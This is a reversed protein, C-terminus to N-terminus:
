RHGGSRPTPTATPTCASVPPPTFRATDAQRPAPGSGVASHTPATSRRGSATTLLPRARREVKAAELDERTIIYANTSDDLKTAPLTGAAIRHLTARPTVGLETAAQRVTLHAESAMGLNRAPAVRATIANHIPALAALKEAEVDRAEDITAHAEAEITAVEAWWTKTNSHNVLRQGLNETCEVYLCTRDAGFLAYAMPRKM